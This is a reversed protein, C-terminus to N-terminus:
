KYREDWPAFNEEGIISKLRSDIQVRSYEINKDDKSDEMIMGAMKNMYEIYSKCFKGARGAGLGLVDNAAFVAADLGMQNAIKLQQRFVNRIQADRKALMRNPQKM